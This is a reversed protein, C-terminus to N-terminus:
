KPWIELNLFPTVGFFFQILIEQPYPCNCMIDKMVVFNLVIRNLPKLPIAGVLFVSPSVSQSISQSVSPDFANYGRCSTTHPIIISIIKLIKGAYYLNSLLWDTLKEFLYYHLSFHDIILKKQPYQKWSSIQPRNTM